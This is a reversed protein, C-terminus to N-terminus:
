EEADAVTVIVEGTGTNGNADTAAFVFVHEGPALVETHFTFAEAPSDLIGDTPFATHWDAANRSCKIGTIPSHEDRATGSIDYSGDPRPRAALDVVTPRRNDVLLPTGVRVDALAEPGPRVNRDSATLRLLYRGDPVRDTNWSFENKGQLDTTVEKWAREDVGRYHLDYVLQDGNPDTAEWAIRRAGPEGEENRGANRPASNDEGSQKLLPRDDVTLKLIRPRRNVQRYSANLELLSPGAAAAPAAGLEVSIQAFRGMPLGPEAGAPDRSWESWESWHEDPEGTVGTRLRVRVAAGEGARGQWWLRGWRSLCGADFPKSVFTGNTRRATGLVHLGGPNSTGVLVNADADAAMTTVHVADFEAVIRVLGDSEVALARGGPGTGAVVRGGALALCFFHRAQLAVVQAAGRGPEIRYINSAGEPRGPLSVVLDGTPEDPPGETGEGGTTCAYVVGDPGVVIDRVEDQPADYLVYTKGDPSMRYVFADPQTGFYATGDGAVALCLLNKQAVNVLEEPTGADDLAVLLGGPGTACLVKGDRGLRMDWVYSADLDAFITAEGDPKVRFIIGRPATGALVSGDPLPLVSLVQPESCEYIRSAKGDKVRYVAAPSGTGVFATGDAEPEVDWIFEAEIGEVTTVVPALELEGTSLVSVGDLKGEAFAEAGAVRWTKGAQARARPALPLAMAAMLLVAPKWTTIRM